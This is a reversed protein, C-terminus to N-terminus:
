REAAAAAMAARKKREEDIPSGKRSAEKATSGKTETVSTSRGTPDNRDTGQLSATSKLSHSGGLDFEQSPGCLGAATVAAATITITDDNNIAAVHYSDGGGPFDCVM